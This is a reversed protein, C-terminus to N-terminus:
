HTVSISESWHLGSVDQVAVTISNASAIAASEEQSLPLQIVAKSSLPVVLGWPGTKIQEFHYKNSINGKAVKSLDSPGWVAVPASQGPVKLAVQEVFSGYSDPGDPRYISLNLRNQSVTSGSLVLKPLKNYNVMKGWLGHHFYQYTFLTFFLGIVLMVISTRRVAREKADVPTEPGVGLVQETKAM